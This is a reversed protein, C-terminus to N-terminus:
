KDEGKLYPNLKGMTALVRYEGAKLIAATRVVNFSAKFYESRANLLDFLTRKNGMEYQSKFAEYSKKSAERYERFFELEVRKTDINHWATAVDRAILRRTEELAEMEQTRRAKERDILSSDAGGNYLNFSMVVMASYSDSTSQSGGINDNETATLELNFKPHYKAKSEKITGDIANIAQDIALISPHSLAVDQAEELKKPIFKSPSPPNFIDKPATGFVEVYNSIAAQLDFQDKRLQAEALALRGKVQVVDAEPVLNNKYRNNVVKLIDKHAAINENTFHIQQQARLLDIYTTVARLAVSEEGDKQAFVSNQMLASNKDVRGGVEGGDYLLQSIILSSEFRTLTRRDDTGTEAETTSNQSNEKGMALHLNITPYYGSKAIDFDKEAVDVARRLKLREPHEEVAKTIMENFKEATIDKIEKQSIGELALTGVILAVM